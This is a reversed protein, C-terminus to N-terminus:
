MRKPLRALRPTYGLRKEQYQNFHAKEERTKCTLLGAMRALVNGEGVGPVLAEQCRRGERQESEWAFARAAHRLEGPPMHGIIAGAVSLPIGDIHRLVLM